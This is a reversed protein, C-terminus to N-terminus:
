TNNQWKFFIKFLFYIASFIAGYLAVGLPILFVISLNYIVPYDMIAFTIISSLVSILLVKLLEKNIPSILTFRYTLIITLILILASAVTTAVAVGYINYDLFLVMSLIVNILFGILIIVFNQKQHGFVALIMSYPYSLFTIGALVILIQLIIVSTEYDKLGYLLHIIKSSFIIGGITMPFALAIMIKMNYNWVAQIKEKPEKLLKSLTPYFSRSVLSAVVIVVAVIKAAVSFFGVQDPKGLLGIMFSDANLFVWSATFDFTLPWSIRFINVWVNKDFSWRLPIIKFNFYILVAALIVASGLLYGYSLTQASPVSFLAFVGLAAILLIQGIHIIAEYEMKQRSRFFAYIIQFFSETCIFGALIWIIQRIFLDDTIFFSASFILIFFIFNLLIKLSFIASFEKEKEKEKALERTTINSIGFDILSAVISVFALAYAFKGYETAGLIRAAYVLLVVGLSSIIVQTGILWFTNKIVTQKIGINKLFLDKPNLFLKRFKEFM